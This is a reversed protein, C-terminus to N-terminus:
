TNECDTVTKHTALMSEAEHFARQSNVLSTNNTEMIIPHVLNSRTTANKNKDQHGGGTAQQDGPDSPM